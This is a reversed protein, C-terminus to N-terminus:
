SRSVSRGPVSGGGRGANWNVEEQLHANVLLAVAIKEEDTMRAHVGALRKDMLGEFKGPLISVLMAKEFSTLNGGDQLKHLTDIIQNAVYKFDLKGNPYRRLPTCGENRDVGDIQPSRVETKHTVGDRFSTETSTSKAVTDPDRRLNLPVRGAYPSNSM